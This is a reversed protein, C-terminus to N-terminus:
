PTVLGGDTEGGLVRLIKIDSTELVALPNFLSELETFTMLTKRM